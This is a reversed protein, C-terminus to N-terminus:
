KSRIFFELFRKVLQFLLPEATANIATKDTTENASANKEPVPIVVTKVTQNPSAQPASKVEAASTITASPIQSPTQQIAKSVVPLLYRASDAANNGTDEATCIFSYNGVETVRF